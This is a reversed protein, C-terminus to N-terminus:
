VLVIASLQFTAKGRAEIESRQRAPIQLHFLMHVVYMPVAVELQNMLVPCHFRSVPLVSSYSSSFSIFKCTFCTSNSKSLELEFSFHHRKRFGCGPSSALCKEHIQLPIEGLKLQTRFHIIGDSNSLIFCRGRFERAIEEWQWVNSLEVWSSRSSWCASRCM